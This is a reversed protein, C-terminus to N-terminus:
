DGQKVYSQIVMRIEDPGSASGFTVNRQVCLQHLKGLGPLAYTQALSAIQKAYDQYEETKKDKTRHKLGQRPQGASRQQPHLATRQPKGDPGIQVQCLQQKKVKGRVSITLLEQWTYRALAQKNMAAAQKIGALREQLQPNQAEARGGRLDNSCSSECCPNRQFASANPSLAGRMSRLEKTQDSSPTPSGRTSRGPSGHTM